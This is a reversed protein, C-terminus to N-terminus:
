TIIEIHTFYVIRMYTYIRTKKILIVYQNYRSINLANVVPSFMTDAIDLGM